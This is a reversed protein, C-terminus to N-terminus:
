RIRREMAKIEGDIRDREDKAWRDHEIIATENRISQTHADEADQAIAKLQAGIEVIKVSQYHLEDYTRWGIVVVLTAFVTGLTGLAGLFLKEVLSRRIYVGGNGDPTAM